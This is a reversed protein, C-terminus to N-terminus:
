NAYIHYVNHLVAAKKSFQVTHNLIKLMHYSSKQSCILESFETCIFVKFTSIQQKVTKFPYMLLRSKFKFSGVEGGVYAKMVVVYKEGTQVHVSHHVPSIWWEATGTM